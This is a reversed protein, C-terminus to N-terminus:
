SQWGFGKNLKKLNFFDLNESYIYDVTKKFESEFLIPDVKYMQALEAPAFYTTLTYLQARRIINKKTRFSARDFEDKIGILLKRVTTENLEENRIVTHAIGLSLLLDGNKEDRNMKAINDHSKGDVEIVLGKMGNGKKVLSPIFIDMPRHGIPYNTFFNINTYKRILDEVMRQKRTTEFREPYEARLELLLIGFSDAVTEYSSREFKFGKKQIIARLRRFYEDEKTVKANDLASIIRSYNKQKISKNYKV